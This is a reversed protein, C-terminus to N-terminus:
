FIVRGELHRDSVNTYSSGEPNDSVLDVQGHHKDVSSIRKLVEHGNIFAVVVDGVKFNRSQSVLVVRGERFTPEM